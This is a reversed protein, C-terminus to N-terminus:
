TTSGFTLSPLPPSRTSTVTQIQVSAYMLAVFCMALLLNERVLMSHAFLNGSFVALLAIMGPILVRKESTRILPYVLLLWFAVIGLVGNEVLTQLFYNHAHEGNQEYSLFLSQTLAHSASQHYFESQGLGAFPFLTSMRLAALYVEPRYSLQLNLTNLSPLNFKSLLSNLM